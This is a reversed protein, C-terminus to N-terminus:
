YKNIVRQNHMSMIKQMYDFYSKIYIDEIGINLMTNIKILWENKINSWLFLKKYENASLMVRDRKNKNYYLDKIIEIFANVQDKKYKGYVLGCYNEPCIEELAGYSNTIICVNNNIAELITMGFTEPYESPMLLYSANKYYENLEEKNKFGVFEIDLIGNFKQRAKIFEKEWYNANDYDDDSLDRYAGGVIKLKANPIEKKVEPWLEELLPRMGKVYASTFIFTDPDKDEININNIKDIGNRTRFFKNKSTYSLEENKNIYLNYQYDSLVFIQHLRNYKLLDPIWEEGVTITDHAWLIKYKSNNVLSNVLQLNFKYKEWMVMTYSDHVFPLVNRVSILIDFAQYQFDIDIKDKYNYYQVKGFFGKKSTNNFVFVNYHESLEKAMNIVATESGGLGTSKLTDENYDLDSYDLFAIVPKDKYVLEQPRFNISFSDLMKYNFNVANDITSERIWGLACIPDTMGLKMSTVSISRPPLFYAADISYYFGVLELEKILFNATNPTIAYAHAGAQRDIEVIKNPAGASVSDYAKYNSVKYGLNVIMNDPIDLDPKHLLIADHELVICPASEKRIRDWLKFHSFSASAAGDSMDFTYSSLKIGSELVLRQVSWHDYGEFYEWPMGLKDCSEATAKAYEVSIPNNSLRIIFAKAVKNSTTHNM